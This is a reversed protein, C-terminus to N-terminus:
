RRAPNKIMYQLIDTKINLDNQLSHTKTPDMQFKYYFYLGAQHHNREYNLHRRGMSNEDTIKAQHDELIKKIETNAADIELDPRTIVTIEYDRTVASM